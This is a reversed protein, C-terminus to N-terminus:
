AHERSFSQTSGQTHATQLPCQMKSGELAKKWRGVPTSVTAMHAHSLPHAKGRISGMHLTGDGRHLKVESDRSVPRHRGHRQCRLPWSQLRCYGHCRLSMHTSAKKGQRSM